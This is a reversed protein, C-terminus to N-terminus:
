RLLCPLHPRLKLLPSRAAGRQGVGGGGGCWVVGCAVAVGGCRNGRGLVGRQNHVPAAPTVAARLRVSAPRRTNTRSPRSREPPRRRDVGAGPPSGSSGATEQARQVAALGGDAAGV